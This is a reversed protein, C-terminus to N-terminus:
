VDLVRLSEIGRDDIIKVAIRKHEGSSFPISITGRYHEILNEDIESNLSKALRYWGDKDGAMPFFVQRPYLSRGDYDTDLMWMAIKESSGSEVTGTKTNYYDFGLVEVQYDGNKLVIKRVDPQGVLWFSENSSKEKKLDETLLDANMQAKLLTVGPWHTEDIDKSAEPDFQFATFVILEPTPVLRRAEEIAREVQRQELPAHEPGFSAVIRKPKSEKTTGDAHLWHMGPLTELRTFEIRQGGKGRIGTKLLEDKWETQRLTEGSRIISEDARDGVNIDNLPQVVPAPVAEVTFPGSIRNKSTEVLPQDYITEQGPIENYAISKLTIHPVTKYNFGSGVGEKPHALQYYEFVSTMLRQKALTVAVRSTDCTIWRRGWKEAVYATTGSGCTLDVVLDGPDTSMLLCRAVATTSTQVVYIKGESRNQVGGIDTWMNNIPFVPFDDLLRIFRPSNGEIVLRKARILNKIGDITTKWHMGQPPSFTIGNMEFSVDNENQGQSTLPDISVLKDKPWWNDPISSCKEVKKYKTAGEEGPNKEKYLQHYKLKTKDKGYWIIYDGARSLTLSSFGSTTAFSILSVFNVPGFIEDMIERVHHVNEDSIQIFISGEEDLLERALFLRDRLYTLYSHIGLEWTDRFALIQEPETTLDDDKGDSVNKKNVFPQFNSGYKIGYPPDFYIMQVKGAMGEKELLSNMVLLSDGAILRNSWGHRHKYFEIAERLPPNEEDFDFLSRQHIKAKKRVGQLITHPDIREHVHLSVTPVEFSTHEAKGTWILQPDLHPDYSYIKNEGDKDTDSTVLGVPPNNVREKDKHRYQEVSNDPKKTKAM